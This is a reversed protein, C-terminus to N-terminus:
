SRSRAMAASRTTLSIPRRYTARARFQRVSTMGLPADNAGALREAVPSEASLAPYADIMM